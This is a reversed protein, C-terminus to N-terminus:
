NNKSCSEETIQTAENLLQIADTLDRQAADVARALRSVLEAKADAFTKHWDLGRTSAKKSKQGNPHFVFCATESTVLRQCIRQSYYGAVEYWVKTEAM